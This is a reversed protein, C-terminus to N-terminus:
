APAPADSATAKDDQSLEYAMLGGVLVFYAVFMWSLTGTITYREVRPDTQLILTHSVIEMGFLWLLGVVNSPRKLDEAHFMVLVLRLIYYYYSPNTLVFLPLVALPPLQHLPRKSRIGYACVLLIAGVGLIRLDGEILDVLVGKGAIGNKGRTEPNYPKEGLHVAEPDGHIVCESGIMRELTGCPTDRMEARTQEGHFFLADGLGVKQSSFQSSHKVANKAGTAFGDVGTYGLALTGLVATTAIGGILFRRTGASIERTQYWDWGMKAVVPVGFIFPFIRSLASWALLGGALGQRGAKLAVMGGALAVVWDFRLLSQTLVPWRSSFTAVYWIAAILAVDPGYIWGIFGFLVLVLVLDVSTIWKLNEVPVLNSLTGGFLTWTPPPNYGHDVFFNKKLGGTGYKEIRHKLFWDVDHKFSEWREPTFGDKATSVSLAASAREEKYTELSRIVKVENVVRQPGERDALLMAEYLKTYGLEDFYKSNVYYYIIDTYDDFGEAWERDFQYYNFSGYIIGLLAVLRALRTLQKRLEEALRHRFAFFLTLAVGLYALQLRGEHSGTRSVREFSTAILWAWGIMLVVEVWHDRGFRDIRQWLTPNPEPTESM